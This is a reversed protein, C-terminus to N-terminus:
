NLLELEPNYVEYNFDNFYLFSLLDPMPNSALSELTVYIESFTPREDLDLQWCHLSMQYLEDDVYLLQPPRMGKIVRMPIDRSAVHGYLTGGLSLIEWLLCGFSWVDSKMAYINQKFMEQATWRAYDPKENSPSIHSLGFGSIKPTMGDGMVINRCCLKKHLIKKSCLYEMGKAIAVSIQLIKNESVLSFKNTQFDRHRSSLLLEKLTHRTDELVVYLTDPLECIGILAIINEHGNSKILMDLEGLMTKKDSKTLDGDNITQVLSPKLMGQHQVRGRVFQGFNGVGVISTNDVELFNRPINWLQRKLNVYHDVREEEDPIFGTNEIEICPGSLAMSQTLRQRRNLGVRRRLVIVAGIGIILLVFGIAVAVGLAMVPGPTPEDESVNLIMVDGTHAYRVKTVGKKTSVVGISIGIDKSQPLPANFYGNYIKKDGVIFDQQVEYTDLESTIYYPIGERSAEYYPKLYDPLFGQQYEENIVVVRYYSVPGNYNIAKPIRIVMRDSHKEVVAAQPPSPDPEGIITEVEAHTEAGSGQSSLACITLNYVTGPHLNTLRTDFTNNSFIWDLPKLVDNSYTFVIESHIKYGTLSTYADPKQWWVHVSTETLNTISINTPPGPVLIGTRYVSFAQPGGCPDSGGCLSSCSEDGIPPLPPSSSCRCSTGNVLLALGYWLQTCSIICTHVSAGAGPLEIGVSTNPSLTFCGVLDLTTTAAGVLVSYVHLLILLLKM